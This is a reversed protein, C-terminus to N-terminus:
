KAILAQRLDQDLRPLDVLLANVTAAESQADSTFGARAFFAYHIQWDPAPAVLKSKEILQRIVSRGIAEGGWKCEGLLLAKERWNIAIVDIQADAAWHSGVLEVAFPLKGQNAQLLTWERCLEEWVTAGIFARFQEGIREWLLNAQGFEIMELNPEIFRFYFRLYADRLHYRGRKSRKRQAIPVTAPIRREIMGLEILSKLYASLNSSTIGTNKAIESVAHHGDAIARLVAEYHRPERVLDSIQVTPESRFMGIPQFLHQRINESLSQRPDFRELYGPVGGLVAYTAVREAAQYHPFFDQVAAFPLPNLHLQATFRGYLPAQYNFLDVMMGIHSGALILTIPKDKLLHDWAAQLHSPLAPDSEVAYPFEDFIYIRPEDGTSAAIEEFLAEWSGFHAVQERGKSRQLTRALSQRTADALERRAVWYVFPLGSQEVWHRLLTTKGVRRRGYV